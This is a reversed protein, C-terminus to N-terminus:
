QAPTWQRWYGQRALKKVSARIPKRDIEIVASGVMDPHRTANGCIAFLLVDKKQHCGGITKM